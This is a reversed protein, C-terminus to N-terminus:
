IRQRQEQEDDEPPALDPEHPLTGPEEAERPQEGPLEEEERRPEEFTSM